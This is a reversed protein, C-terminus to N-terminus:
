INVTQSSFFYIPARDKNGYMRRFDNDLAQNEVILPAFFDNFSLTSGVLFHLLSCLFGFPFRDLNLPFDGFFLSFFLHLSLFCFFLFGTSPFFSCESLWFCCIRLFFRDGLFFLLWLFLFCSRLSVGGLFRLSSCLSQTSFSCRCSQFTLWRWSEPRDVSFFDSPDHLRRTTWM